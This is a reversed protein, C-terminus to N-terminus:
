EIVVLAKIYFIMKNEKELNFTSHFRSIFAKRKQNILQEDLM